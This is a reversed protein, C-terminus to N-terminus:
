DDGMMKAGCNPCYNTTMGFFGCESCEGYDMRAKIWKGHLREITSDENLTIYRPLPIKAGGKLAKIAEECAKSKFEKWNEGHGHHLASEADEKREGDCDDAYRPCGECSKVVDCQKIWWSGDFVIVVDHTNLEKWKFSKDFEVGMIGEITAILLEGNTM